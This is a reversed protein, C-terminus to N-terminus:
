GTMGSINLATSKKGLHGTIDHCGPRVVGEPGFAKLLDLLHTVRWVDM